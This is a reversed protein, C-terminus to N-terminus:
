IQGTSEPKPCMEATGIKSNFSELVIAAKVQPSFKSKVM